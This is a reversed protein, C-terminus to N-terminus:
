NDRKKIIKDVLGELAHMLTVSSIFCSFPNAKDRLKEINISGLDDGTHSIIQINM